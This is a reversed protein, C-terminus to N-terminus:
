VDCGRSTNLWQAQKMEREAIAQLVSLSNNDVATNTPFPRAFVLTSVFGDLRPM